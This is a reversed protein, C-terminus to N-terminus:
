SAASPEMGASRMLETNLKAGLLTVYGSLFLWLQLVIIAGISGYTGNTSGFNELYAAFAWTATLWLITAALAGPLMWGWTPPPRNPAHRYVLAMAGAACIAVVIWFGLRLAPLAAVLEDPLVREIWAFTSIAFLATLILVAGCLVILLAILRRRVFGRRYNVDSAINLGSIISRGARLASVLAVSIAILLGIDRGDPRTIARVLWDGIFDRAEAPLIFLLDRINNVVQGAPTVMGYVLGVAGLFPLLGLFAAFAIAGAIMGYNDNGAGRVTRVFSAVWASRSLRWPSTEFQPPTAAQADLWQSYGRLRAFRVAVGSWIRGLWPGGSISM